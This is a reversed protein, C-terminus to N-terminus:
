FFKKFGFHIFNHAAIQRYTLVMGADFLLNEGGLSKAYPSFGFVLDSPSGGTRQLDLRFRM